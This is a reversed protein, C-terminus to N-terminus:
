KKWWHSYCIASSSYKHICKEHVCIFHHLNPIFVQVVQHLRLIESKHESFVPRSDRCSWLIEQSSNRMHAKWDTWVFLSFSQFLGHIRREEGL